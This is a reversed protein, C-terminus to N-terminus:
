SRYRPHRRRLPTRLHLNGRSDPLYLDVLYQLPALWSKWGESCRRVWDVEFPVESSNRLADLVGTAAVEDDQILIIRQSM